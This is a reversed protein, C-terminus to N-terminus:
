INNLKKITDTLKKYNALYDMRMAGLLIMLPSYNKFKIKTFMGSFEDGFPNEKGILIQINGSMTDYINKITEDCHDIIKSIHIILNPSCFEPKSFLNSIGTYYTNNPEFALIITENTKQSLSKALTKISSSEPMNARFDTKIKKNKLIDSVFMKYAKETPVRGASTHPQYIFGNNELEKMQNRITASSVNLGCKEVLFKSGVPEAKKIYESVINLLIQDKDCKM